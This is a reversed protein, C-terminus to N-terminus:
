LEWSFWRGHGDTEGVKKAYAKGDIYYDLHLDRDDMNNYIHFVERDAGILRLQELLSNKQNISMQNAVHTHFVIVAHDKSIDKILHHLMEM